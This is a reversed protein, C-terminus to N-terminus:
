RTPATLDKAHAAGGVAQEGGPGTAHPEPTAPQSATDTRRAADRQEGPTQQPPPQQKPPQQTPAPPAAPKDARWDELHLEVRAWGRFTNIVPKFAISLPGRADALEQERDGAGFAVARLRVGHQEVEVSLHRGGGMPKPRSALRVGSTCLVPRRNGCGFPALREIETVAQHTLTVLPAEADIELATGGRMAEQQTRAHAYFAARFADLSGDEIRLGAAAAHGGHSQLHQTCRTFADALNFGPVSRGSGVGPKVGLKDQSVLVVPRGYQEALKGAVIGIVGPHWDREALVLAPQDGAAIQQKAQKRAALLVSRELAQRSTNLEDVFGALEEARDPDDTALLEVALEAQ